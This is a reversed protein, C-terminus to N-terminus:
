ASSVQSLKIEKFRTDLIVAAINFWGEGATASHDYEDYDYSLREISRCPPDYEYIMDGTLPLQIDKMQDKTKCLPLQEYNSTVNKHYPARCGVHNAHMEMVIDDSNQWDDICPSSPRNRRILVEANKLWFDMAYAKNNKRSPWQWKVTSLSRLIQNPYHFFVLFGSKTPRISDKFISQNVEVNVAFIEADTTEIAFCKIFRKLWFGNYSVYPTKWGFTEDKLYPLVSGNKWLVMYRIIYHQIDITVHDYNIESSSRNIEKSGSLFEHYTSANLGHKLLKDEKFTDAFCMSLVPFVDNQTEFYEHYKIVCIDEDLEYKYLWYVIMTFTGIFCVAEFCAQLPKSWLTKNMKDDNVASQKRVEM